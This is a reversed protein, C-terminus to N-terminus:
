LHTCLSSGEVVQDLQDEYPVWAYALGAEQQAKGVVVEGRRVDRGDANVELDLGDVDVALVDLKLDPVRSALLAEPGDRLGVVLAGHADDEGVVAGGLFAKIVHPVPHALYLHM